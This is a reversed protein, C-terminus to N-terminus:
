TLIVPAIRYASQVTRRRLIRSKKKINVFMYMYMIEFHFFLKKYTCTYKLILGLTEYFKM